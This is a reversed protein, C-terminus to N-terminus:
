SCYTPNWNRLHKLICGQESTGASPQLSSQSRFLAVVCFERAASHQSKMTRVPQWGCVRWAAWWCCPLQWTALSTDCCESFNQAWDKGVCGDRPTVTFCYCKCPLLLLQLKKIQKFCNTTLSKSTMLLCWQTEEEEEPSTPKNRKLLNWTLFSSSMLVAYQWSYKCSNM